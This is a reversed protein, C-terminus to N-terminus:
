VPVGYPERAAGRAGPLPDGSVLPPSPVTARPAAGPPFSFLAHHPARDARERVRLEERLLRFDNMM